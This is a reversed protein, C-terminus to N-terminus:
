MPRRAMAKRSENLLIERVQESASDIPSRGHNDALSIDAGRQVLLKCCEIDVKGNNFVKHLSTEGLVDQWNVYAIVEDPDIDETGNAGSDRNQFFEKREEEDRQLLYEIVPRHLNQSALHLPTLEEHTTVNLDHGYQEILLKVLAKNGHEAALHLITKKHQNGIKSDAKKDLLLKVVDYQRNEMACFLATAGTDDRIDIDIAPHDLLFDIMQMNGRMASIHLPTKGDEENQVNPDSGKLTLLIVQAYNNADVALFLSIELSTDRNEDQHNIEPFVIMNRALRLTELKNQPSELMLALHYAGSNSIQNDNLSLLSISEHQKLIEALTIAGDDSIHNNDLIVEKVVHNYSLANAFEEIGRDSINNNSFDLVRLSKNTGLVKTFAALGEDGISNESLILHTLNPAGNLYPCLNAFGTKSLKIGSLDLHTIIDNGDLALACYTIDEDSFKTNKTLVKSVKWQTAEVDFTFTSLTKLVKALDDMQAQYRENNKKDQANMIICNFVEFWEDREQTSKLELDLTRTRGVLTLCLSHDLKKGARQFVKSGGGKQVECFDEIKYSNKRGNPNNMEKWTITDLSQNASVWRDHPKGKRGHKFFKGGKIITKIHKDDQKKKRILLFM